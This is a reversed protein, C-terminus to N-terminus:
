PNELNGKRLLASFIQNVRQTIIRSLMREELQALYEADEAQIDKILESTLAPIDRHSRTLTGQEKLIDAMKRIRVETVFNKVFLRVKEEEDALRTFAEVSVSYNKERFPENKFKALPLQGDIPDLSPDRIIIGERPANKGVSSPERVLQEFVPMHPIGRYLEPVTPLSLRGALETFEDYKLLDNNRMVDFFRIGVGERLYLIEKQIKPGFLEGFLTWNRKDDLEGLIKDLPLQTRIDEIFRAFFSGKKILSGKAGFSIKDMAAGAPILIRFNAGHIKETVVIESRKLLMLSVELDKIKPYTASM